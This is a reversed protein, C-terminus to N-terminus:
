AVDFDGLFGEGKSDTDFEAQILDDTNLEGTVTLHQALFSGKRLWAVPMLLGLTLIIILWNGIFLGVVQLRSPLFSFRAPGFSMKGVVNRWYIVLYNLYALGGGILCLLALGGTTAAAKGLATHDISDNIILVDEGSLMAWIQDGHAFASPALIAYIGAFCLMLAALYPKWLGKTTADFSFSRGGFKTHMLKYKLLQIDAWPKLVGLTIFVLAYFGISKLAYIYAAGGVSGRIGRWQTRNVRYRYALYRAATYLFFIGLSSILSLATFLPSFGLEPNIIRAQVWNSFLGYPLLILIFVKLFGLFIELGTGTYELPTGDLSMRPWIARRVRTLAWFRYIFLTLMMFIINVIHLSILGAIGSSDFKLEHSELGKQGVSGLSGSGSSEFTM